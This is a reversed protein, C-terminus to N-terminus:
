TIPEPAVHQSNSSQYVRGPKTAPLDPAEKETLGGKGYMNVYFPGPVLSVSRYRYFSKM